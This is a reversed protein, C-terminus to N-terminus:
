RLNEHEVGVRDTLPRPGGVKTQPDTKGTRGRAPKGRRARATLATSVHAVTIYLRLGQEFEHSPANTPYYKTSRSCSESLMVNFENQQDFEAM